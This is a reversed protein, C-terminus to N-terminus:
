PTQPESVDLVIKGFGHRVALREYAERVRDLPYGAYIPVVFDKRALGEALEILTSRGDVASMGEAKVGHKGAAAFDIITEIRGPDVGLELALEVNGSGYADIFADVGSPALERIRDAVGDGYLVPQVGLASLREHNDAGATGIVTAGLNRALQAAIVGVGGAAGAVVVSDGEGVGVARVTAVATTGAVYLASAERWGVEAPKPIVHDAPLVVCEAQSNRWDSFGIVEDGVSISDVGDGVEVVVGALDSGQGSPFTAPFMSHMSGALISLEGPNIAAAVVAVKVEGADPARDDVEVVRLQEPGGYQEFRVAKSM